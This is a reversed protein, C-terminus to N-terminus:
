YWSEVVGIADGVVVLDAVIVGILGIRADAVGIAVGVFAVFVAGGAVIRALIMSRVVLFSLRKVFWELQPACNHIDLRVKMTM